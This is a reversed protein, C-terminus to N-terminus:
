ANLVKEVVSNGIAVQIRGPKQLVWDGEGVSMNALIEPHAVVDELVTHLRIPKSCSSHKGYQKSRYIQQVQLGLCGEDLWREGSRTELLM